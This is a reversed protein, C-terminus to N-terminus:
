ASEAEPGARTEVVTGNVRATLGTPPRSALCEPDYCETVEVIRGEKDRRVALVTDGSGYPDLEWGDLMLENARQSFAAFAATASDAGLRLVVRMRPAFLRSRGYRETVHWHREIRVNHLKGAGGEPSL